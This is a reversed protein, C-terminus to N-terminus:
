SSLFRVWGLGEQTGGKTSNLQPRGRSAESSHWAHLGAKLVGLRPSEGSGLLSDLKGVALIQAGGLVGLQELRTASSM